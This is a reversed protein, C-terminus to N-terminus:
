VRNEMIKLITLSFIQSNKLLKILIESRIETLFGANSDHETTREPFIASKHSFIPTRVFHFFFIERFLFYKKQQKDDELFIVSSLIEIISSFLSKHTM